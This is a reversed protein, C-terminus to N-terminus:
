QEPRHTEREERHIFNAEIILGRNPRGGPAFGRDIRLIWIPKRTRFPPSFPAVSQNSLRSRSLQEAIARAGFGQPLDDILADTPEDRPM